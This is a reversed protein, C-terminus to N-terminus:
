CKLIRFARYVEVLREKEKEWNYVEAASRANKACREWLGRDELLRRAKAAVDEPASPDALLGVDAERVVKGIEPFDSAM